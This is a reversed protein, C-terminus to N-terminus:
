DKTDPDFIYWGTIIYKTENPATIGRHHHTWYSPWIAVSGEVAKLNPLDYNFETGGGEEVDNLYIMWALLRHTTDLGASECHWHYYGEGPFYRQINIDRDLKWSGIKDIFKYEEKYELVCDHLTTLLTNICAGWEPHHIFSPDITIDTSRKIAEIVAPKGDPGGTRGPGHLNSMSEFLHIVQKCVESSLAHEKSYIFTVM